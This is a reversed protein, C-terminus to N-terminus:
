KGASRDCRITCLHNPLRREVMEGIKEIIAEDSEKVDYPVLIDFTLRSTEGDETERFDHITIRDDIQRAICSVAVKNGFQDENKTDVPDLHIVADCRLSKNLEREIADIIDHATFIDEDAPLEVHVSIMCRGPGYDHVALDHMGLVMPHSTVIREVKEVFDKDPAAGLLPELTGKAAVVGSYVIFVSVATGVYGDLHLSTYRSVILCLLVAITTVCDSLSDIGAAKLASSKFYKAYKMNFLAMYLKVLLSVALVIVAAASFTLSRDSGISEISNIALELGMVIIIISVILGTVYEARGHGFPHECDPKKESIKFGVLTVISSGADSLNNFADAIVSVSGSVLAVALKGGFLLVNLIIGVLGCRMGYRTRVQADNSFDGSAMLKKLALLM